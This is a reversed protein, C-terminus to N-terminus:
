HTVSKMVRSTTDDLCRNSNKEENRRTGSWEHSKISPTVCLSAISMRMQDKIHLMSYVQYCSLHSAIPIFIYLMMRTKKCSPLFLLLFLLDPVSNLRPYETEDETWNDKKDAQRVGERKERREREEERQGTLPHLSAYDWARCGRSWRKRKKCTKPERTKDERKKETTKDREVSSSFSLSFSLSLSVFNPLSNHSGWTRWGRSVRLPRLSCDWETGPVHTM